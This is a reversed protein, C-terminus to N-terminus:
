PCVQLHWLIHKQHSPRLIKKKQTESFLILFFVDMQAIEIWTQNPETIKIQEGDM